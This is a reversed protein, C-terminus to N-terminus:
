VDSQNDKMLQDEEESGGLKSHKCNSLSRLLYAFLMALPLTALAVLVSGVSDWSMPPYVPEGSTKTCILNVMGYFFLVPLEAVYLLSIEYIMSNLWFEIFLLVFPVTHTTILLFLVLNGFLDSSEMIEAHLITWYVLTVIVEFLLAM